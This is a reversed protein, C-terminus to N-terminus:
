RNLEDLRLQNELNILKPGKQMMMTKRSSNKSQSPVPKNRLNLIKLKHAELGPPSTIRLKQPENLKELSNHVTGGINNPYGKGKSQTATNTGTQVVM